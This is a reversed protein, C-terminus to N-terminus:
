PTDVLAAILNINLWDLDGDTETCAVEVTHTGAALNDSLGTLAMTGPAPPPHNEPGGGSRQEGMQQPRSIEAADVKLVCSGRVINVSDTTSGNDDFLFTHWQGTANIVARGPRPLVLTLTACITQVGSDANCNGSAEEAVFFTSVDLTAENIDAGTLTNAAVDAGTITSDAIDGTTVANAALETATVANTAIEAAGVANAAIEAATVADTAIEDAGVAGSAIEAAGVANAAIEAAAVANAAIEAATVADTAIEDAGVAGSAVESAGVANPAIELAGVGNTAIEAAAVANAAITPNPYTGTLDGGAPGIPTDAQRTPDEAGAGAAFLEWVAGAAPKANRNNRQARWTSGDYAVLDNESYVAAANWSGRATVGDRGCDAVLAETAAGATQLTVVCDGPHYVLSFRFRGNAGALMNFAPEARGDLRVRSNPTTTGAVVLRGAAIAAENVTIDAALAPTAVCLALVSASGLVACVPRFYKM